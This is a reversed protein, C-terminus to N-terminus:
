KSNSFDSYGMLPSSNRLLAISWPSILGDLKFRVLYHFYDKAENLDNFRKIYDEDPDDNFRAVVKYISIRM